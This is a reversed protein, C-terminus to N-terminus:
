SVIAETVEGKGDLASDYMGRADDFCVSLWYEKKEANYIAQCRPLEIKVVAEWLNKINSGKAMHSIPISDSQGDFLWVGAKNAYILAHVCDAILRKSDAGMSLYKATFSWTYPDGDVNGVAVSNRKFIWLKGKWKVLATIEDSNDPDIDIWNSLPWYDILDIESYYLRSGIAMFARNGRDGFVECTVGNPPPSHDEPTELEEHYQEEVSLDDASDIFGPWLTYTYDGDAVADSYVDGDENLLTLVHEAVVSVQKWADNIRVADGVSVSLANEGTALFNATNDTLTGGAEEITGTSAVILGKKITGALFLDDDADEAPNSRKRNRWVKISDAHANEIDYNNEANWYGVANNLHIWVNHGDNAFVLETGKNGWLENASDYLSAYYSYSDNELGETLQLTGSLVSNVGSLTRFGWTGITDGDYKLPPNSGDTLFLTGKYVCHDFFRNLYYQLNSPIDGSASAPTLLAVWAGSEYVFVNDWATMMFFATGDEKAWRILTTPRDANKYAFTSHIANGTIKELKGILPRLNELRAAFRPDQTLDNGEERIGLMETLVFDREM